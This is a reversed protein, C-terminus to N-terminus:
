SPARAASSPKLGYFKEAVATTAAALDEYAIGRTAAIKRAIHVVMAPENVKGRHPQPALYPADTEVMFGDLPARAAIALLDPANKFTVIGTFSILLGADWAAKAQQWSGDFCHLVARLGRRLAPKLIALADDIAKRSHVILPRASALAVEIQVQFAPEQEKRMTRGGRFYDLGAEGIAVAEPHARVLAALEKANCSAIGVANPHVGISFHYEPYSSSLSVLKPLEELRTCVAIAAKVGAARM